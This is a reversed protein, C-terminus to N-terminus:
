KHSKKRAADSLDIRQGSKAKTFIRRDNATIGIVTGPKGDRGNVMFGALGDPMVGSYTRLANQSYVGFGSKGEASIIETRNGKDNGYVVLQSIDGGKADPSACMFLRPKGDQGNLFFTPGGDDAISLDAKVGKEDIMYLFPNEHRDQNGLGLVAKMQQNKDLIRIRPEDNSDCRLSMRVKGKSDLINLDHVELTSPTLQPTNVTLQPQALAFGGQLALVICGGVVGGFLTSLFQGRM